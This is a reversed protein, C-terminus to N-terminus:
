ILSDDFTVKIVSFHHKMVSKQHEQPCEQFWESVQWSNGYEYEFGYGFQVTKVNRMINNSSAIFSLTM